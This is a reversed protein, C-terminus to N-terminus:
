LMIHVIISASSSTINHYIQYQYQWYSVDWIASEINYVIAPILVLDSIRFRPKYPKLIDLDHADAQSIYELLLSGLKTESAKERTAWKHISETKLRLRTQIPNVKHRPYVKSIKKVTLTLTLLACRVNQQSPHTLGAQLM